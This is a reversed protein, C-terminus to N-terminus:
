PQGEKERQFLRCILYVTHLIMAAGTVPYVAYIWTMPIGMSPSVSKAALELSSKSLYVLIVGFAIMALYQILKLVKRPTGRLLEELVNMNIHSDEYMVMAAGLNVILVQGYRGFEESWTIGAGAMRGFVQGALIVCMAMFAIVTACWFIKMVLWNIRSFLKM